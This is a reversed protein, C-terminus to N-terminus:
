PLRQELDAPSESGLLINQGGITQINSKLEVADAEALIPSAFKGLTEVHAVLFEFLPEDGLAGAPGLGYFPM